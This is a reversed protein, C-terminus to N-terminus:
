NYMLLHVNITNESYVVVFVTLQAEDRLKYFVVLLDVADAPLNKTAMKPDNGFFEKGDVLVKKVKEGQAKVTGDRDVKVGPLKKLLEEVSANPVTRFSGANYQITDGLLTVPPTEATIIVERLLKSKDTLTIKGLDAQRHYEDIVFFSNSSHYNIHTVLLRYAGNALGALEFGGENGSLTFSVLSSDKKQLLTITAGSVPQRAVTDFVFGKVRGDRQAAANLCCYLLLLLAPYKKM